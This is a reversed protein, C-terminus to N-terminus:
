GRPYRRIGVKRHNPLLNIKCTGNTSELSIDYSSSVSCNILFYFYFLCLVYIYIYIGGIDPMKENLLWYKYCPCHSNLIIVNVFSYVISSDTYRKLLIDFFYDLSLPVFPHACKLFGTSNSNDNTSSSLFSHVSHSPHISSSPSISVFSDSYVRKDICYTQILRFMREHILELDFCNMTIIEFFILCKRALGRKGTEKEILRLLIKMIKFPDLPYELSCGKRITITAPKMDLLCNDKVKKEESDYEMM